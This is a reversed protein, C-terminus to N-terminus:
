RWTLLQIFDELTLLAVWPKDNRRHLVIPTKGKGADKTSQALWNYLNGSEVRKCEIHIDSFISDAVVDPSDGGGHFQQGRRAEIGYGKLVNALEREGAAGKQRSNIKPKKTM